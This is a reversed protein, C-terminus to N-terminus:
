RRGGQMLKRPVETRGVVGAMAVEREWDAVKTGVGEVEARGVGAQM